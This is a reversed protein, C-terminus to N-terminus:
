LATQKEGASLKNIYKMTRTSQDDFSTVHTNYHAIHKIYHVTIFIIAYDHHCHYPYDQIPLEGRAKAKRESM